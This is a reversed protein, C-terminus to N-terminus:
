AVNITQGAENTRSVDCNHPYRKGKSSVAVLEVSMEGNDYFSITTELTSRGQKGTGKFQSVVKRAPAAPAAPAEQTAAENSTNEAVPNQSRNKKM